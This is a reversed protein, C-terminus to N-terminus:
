CAQARLDGACKRWVETHYTYLDMMVYKGLYQYGLIVVLMM